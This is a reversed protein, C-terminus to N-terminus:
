GKGCYQISQCASCISRTSDGCVVCGTTKNLRGIDDMSLWTTPLLFSPNYTENLGQPPEFDTSLHKSNQM